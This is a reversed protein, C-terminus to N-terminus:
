RPWRMPTYRIGDTCREGSLPRFGLRRYVPVAYPSANVTISAAPSISRLHNWLRRGIGQRLRDAAVFFLAIHSRNDRAAIVGYLRGSEFAGFGELTDWSAEDAVFRRFAETGEPPYEPAEFRQFTDWVLQMAAPRESPALLRIEM